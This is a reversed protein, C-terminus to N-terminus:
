YNWILNGNVTRTASESGVCIINGTNAVAISVNPHWCGSIVTYAPRYSAPILATHLTKESTTVSVNQQYYKLHCMKIAENVWLIAYNNGNTWLSTQTWTDHTHGTDSKQNLTNYLNTIDTISHTHGVESFYESLTEYLQSKEIFEGLKDTKVWTGYDGLVPEDTAM